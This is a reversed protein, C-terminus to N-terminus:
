DLWNNAKALIWIYTMSLIRMGFNQIKAIESIGEADESIAIVFAIFALTILIIRKINLLIKRIKKNRRKM